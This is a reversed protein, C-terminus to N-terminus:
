ITYAINYMLVNTSRSFIEAKERERESQREKEEYVKMCMACYLVMLKLAHLTGTVM